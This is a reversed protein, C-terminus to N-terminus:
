IIKTLEYKTHIFTTVNNLILKTHLLIGCKREKDLM